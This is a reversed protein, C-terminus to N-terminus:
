MKQLYMGKLIARQEIAEDKSINTKISRVSSM